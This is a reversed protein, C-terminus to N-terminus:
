AAVPLMLPRMERAVEVTGYIDAAASHARIIRIGYNKAVLELTHSQEKQTRENLVKPLNPLKKWALDLLCLPPGDTWLGFGQAGTREDLGGLMGLDFRVNFGAPRLRGRGKVMSRLTDAVAQESPSGKLFERTLGHIALARPDLELHEPPEIYTQWYERIRFDLDTRIVALDLIPHLEPKLGGTETDVFLFGDYDCDFEPHTFLNIVNM